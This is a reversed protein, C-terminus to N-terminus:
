NGRRPATPDSSRVDDFRATYGWIGIAAKTGHDLYDVEGVVLAGDRSSLAIATRKPHSPDGRVDDLVAVRGLWHEGLKLEGRVAVSTM